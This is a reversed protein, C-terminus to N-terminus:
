DEEDVHIITILESKVSGATVDFTKAEGAGPIYYKHEVASPELPTTDKTQLVNGNSCGFPVCISKTVSLVQVQDLAVGPSNEQCYSDGVKPNAEMVIGPQAGNVGGEWSGKHGIPKGDQYETAFEGFYWVNGYKDQAFWDFTKETLVGKVTVTDVVVVNEVGLIVKTEDTVVIVSVQPQGDSTGSYVKISGPSLPALGVEPYDSGDWDLSFIRSVQRRVRDVDGTGYVKGNLGRDEWLAVGVPDYEEDLPFAMRVISHKSWFRRMPAWNALVDRTADWSFPGRPKIIFDPEMFM